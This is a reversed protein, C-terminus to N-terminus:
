LPNAKTLRFPQHGEPASKHHFFRTNAQHATLNM